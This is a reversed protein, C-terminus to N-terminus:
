GKRLLFRNRVFYCFIAHEKVYRTDQSFFHYPLGTCPVLEADQRNTISSDLNRNRIIHLKKIKLNSIFFYTSLFVCLSEYM